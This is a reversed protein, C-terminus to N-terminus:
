QRVRSRTYTFGGTTVYGICHRSLAEDAEKNNTNTLQQVPFTLM